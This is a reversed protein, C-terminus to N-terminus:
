EIYLDRLEAVGPDGTRSSEVELLDLIRVLSEVDGNCYTHNLGTQPLGRATAIQNVTEKLGTKQFLHDPSNGAKHCTDCIDHDPCSRCRWRIGRLPNVGCGDCQIGDHLAAHQGLELPTQQLEDRVDTEAGRELLFEIAALNATEVALHLAARGLYGSKLNLQEPSNFRQLLENMIDRNIDMDYYDRQIPKPDKSDPSRSYTGRYAWAARHLASFNREPEVIFDISESADCQSLLYRLRPTSHQAASAVIHGLVTSPYELSMLGSSLSLANIDAGLGLLTSALNFANNELAVLLPTEAMSGQALRGDVPVGAAALDTALTINANHGAHAFTHLASWEVQDQTFPNRTAARVDVGHEVLLQFISKRNWRVCESLPTLKNVGCPQNIHERSFAGCHGTLKDAPDFVKSNHQEQAAVLLAEVEPSLLYEVVADHAESVALYLLTYGFGGIGTSFTVGVTAKLLYDFTEKFKVKYQPGHRLMMSFVDASRTASELFTTYTFGLKEERMAEVMLELCEAHHYYAAWQVPTPYPAVTDICIAATEAHDLLFKVIAPRDHHVAWNLPTGPQQHDVDIGSPFRSYAISKTTRLRIDAGSAVLTGGMIEIDADDFSILWHLPSEKSPTAISADAGRELLLRVVETQGARCACLLPSEGQDNVQNVDLASFSDLLTEIANRKGCSAALHLIRDGRNNIRYDAIRNLRSFNQVLVQQNDFTYMWQGFSFGHLLGTEPEFFRAGTGALGDRLIRRVQSIIQPAVDALDQSAMRSGELAMDWLNSIMQDDARFDEKIARCIRYGYAKSIEHGWRAAHLILQIAEDHNSDAGYGNIYFSALIFCEPPNVENNKSANQVRALVRQFIFTQVAPELDRM